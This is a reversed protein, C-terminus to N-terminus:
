SNPKKPKNLKYLKELLEKADHVNGIYGMKRNIKSRNDEDYQVKTANDPVTIREDQSQYM